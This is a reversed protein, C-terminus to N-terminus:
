GGFARNIQIGVAGCDAVAAPKNIRCTMRQIGFEAHILQCLREAFTEILEFTQSEAWARIRRSLRDYDLAREINDSEGAPRCDYDLTLDLILEQPAHREFEYVGILTSLSLGSLYVQDTM